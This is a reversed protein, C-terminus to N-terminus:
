SLVSSILTFSSLSWGLPVSVTTSAEHVGTGVCLLAVVPGQSAAEQLDSEGLVRRVDGAEMKVERSHQIRADGQPFFPHCVNLLELRM